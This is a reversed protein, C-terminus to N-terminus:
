EEVITCYLTNSSDSIIEILPMITCIDEDEENQECYTKLIRIFRHMRYSQEELKEVKNDTM